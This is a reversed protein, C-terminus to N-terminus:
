NIQGGEQIAFGSQDRSSLAILGAAIVLFLVGNQFLVRSLCGAV